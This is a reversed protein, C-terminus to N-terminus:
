SSWDVGSNSKGLQNHQYSVCASYFWLALFDWSMNIELEMQILPLFFFDISDSHFLCLKNPSLCQKELHRSTSVFYAAFCPILFLKVLALISCLDRRQDKILDHCEVVLQAQHTLDWLGPSRVHHHPLLLCRLHM